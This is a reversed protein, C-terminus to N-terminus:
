HNAKLTKLENEQAANLKEIIAKEREERNPKGKLHRSLSVFTDDEEEEHHSILRGLEASHSASITEMRSKLDSELAAELRTWKEDFTSHNSVAISHLEQARTEHKSILMSQQAQNIHYLSARLVQMREAISMLRK